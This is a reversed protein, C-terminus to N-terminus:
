DSDSHAVRLWIFKARSRRPSKKSGRISRIVRITTPLGVIFTDCVLRLRLITATAANRLPRSEAVAMRTIREIRPKLLGRRGPAADFMDKDYEIPKVKYM